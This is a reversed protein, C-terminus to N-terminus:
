KFSNTHESKWVSGKDWICGPIHGLEVYAWLEWQWSYRDWTCGPIPGLEVYVWLEWKWVTGKDWTCGPIPGLELM